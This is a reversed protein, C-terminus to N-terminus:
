CRESAAPNHRLDSTLDHPKCLCLDSAQPIKGPFLIKGNNNKTANTNKVDHMNGVTPKSRLFNNSVSPIPSNEGGPGNSLTTTTIVNDNTLVEGGSIVTTMNDVKNHGKSAIIQDIIEQSPRNNSQKKHDALFEKKAREKQKMKEEEKRVLSM